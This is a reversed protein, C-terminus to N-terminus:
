GSVVHVLRHHSCLALKSCLSGSPIYNFFSSAVSVGSFKVADGRRVPSASAVWTDFLLFCNSQRSGARDWAEYGLGMWCVASVRACKSSVHVFM